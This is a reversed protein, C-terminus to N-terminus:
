KLATIDFCNSATIWTSLVVARVGNRMRQDGGPKMPSGGLSTRSSRQIRVDSPALVLARRSITRTVWQV